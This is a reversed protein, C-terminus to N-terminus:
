GGWGLGLLIAKLKATMMGEGPASDREVLEHFGTLGTNVLAAMAGNVVLWKAQDRLMLAPMALEPDTWYGLFKQGINRKIVLAKEHAKLVSVGWGEIDPEIEQDKPIGPNDPITYPHTVLYKTFLPFRDKFDAIFQVTRGYSFAPHDSNLPEDMLRTDGDGVIYVIVKDVLNHANLWKYTDKWNDRNEKYYQMEAIIPIGKEKIEMADTYKSPGIGTNMLVLGLGLLHKLHDATIGKRKIWAPGGPVSLILYRRDTM